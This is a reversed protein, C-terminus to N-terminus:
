WGVSLKEGKTIERYLNGMLKGFKVDGNSYLKQLTGQFGFEELSKMYKRVLTVIGRQQSGAQRLPAALRASAMRLAM